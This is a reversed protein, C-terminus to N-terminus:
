SYIFFCAQFFTVHTVRKYSGLEKDVGHCGEQSSDLAQQQEKTLQLVTDRLKSLGDSQATEFTQVADL